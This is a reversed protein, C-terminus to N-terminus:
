KDVLGKALWSVGFAALSISELTYVTPVVGIHHTNTAFCLGNLAICGLVTWGCAIYTRKRIIKQRSEVGSLTFLRLSMYAFLAFLAIASTLHIAGSISRAADIDVGLSQILELTLPLPTITDFVGSELKHSTPFLAVGLAGIGAITSATQDSLLRRVPLDAKAFGKYTVLFLGLVGLIAVFIDRLGSYYYASISTLIRQSSLLAFILITAPLMIGLVGILKRLTLYSVVLKNNTEAVTKQTM